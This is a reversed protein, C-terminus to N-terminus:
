VTIHEGRVGQNLYSRIHIGTNSIKERIHDPVSHVYGKTTNTNKHNMIHMLSDLGCGLITSHTAFTHRFTHPMFDNIGSEDKVKKIYYQLAGKSIHTGEYKGPFLYPNDTTDGTKMIMALEIAEKSV